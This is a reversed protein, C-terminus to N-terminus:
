QTNERTPPLFLYCVRLPHLIAPKPPLSVRRVGVDPEGALAQGKRARWRRHAGWLLCAVRDAVRVQTFLSRETSSKRTAASCALTEAGPAQMDASCFVLPQPVWQPLSPSQDASWEGSVVIGAPPEKARQRREMSRREERGKVGPDTLEGWAVAM